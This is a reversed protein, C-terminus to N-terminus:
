GLAAPVTEPRKKVGFVMKETIGWKKSNKSRQAAERTKYEESYSATNGLPEGCFPCYEWGTWRSCVDEGCEPCEDASRGTPEVCYVIKRYWYDADDYKGVDLHHMVLVERVTLNLLDNVSELELRLSVGIAKESM